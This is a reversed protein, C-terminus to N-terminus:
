FQKKSLIIKTHFSPTKDLKFKIGLKKLKDTAINPKTTSFGYTYATGSINNKELFKEVKRVFLRNNVKAKDNAKDKDDKLYEGTSFDFYGGLFVSM